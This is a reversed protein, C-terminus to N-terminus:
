AAQEDQRNTFASTCYTLANMHGFDGNGELFVLGLSKLGECGPKAQAGLFEGPSAEFVEESPGVLGDLLDEIPDEGLVPVQVAAEGLCVGLVGHAM